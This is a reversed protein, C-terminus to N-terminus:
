CFNKYSAERYFQQVEGQFFLQRMQDKTYLPAPSDLFNILVVLTRQTGTTSVAPAAVLVQPAEQSTDGVIKNELRFGSMRVKAGSQILPAEGAPYFSVRQKQATSVFYQYSARRNAFDDIHITTVFGEITQKSEIDKQLEAPLAARAGASIAYNLFQKPDKEALRLMLIKRRSVVNKIEDLASAGAAGSVSEAFRSGFNVLQETLLKLDDSLVSTAGTAPKQSFSEGSTQTGSTQTQSSTQYQTRQQQVLSNLQTQLAAIKAQIQQITHSPTHDALTLVPAALSAALTLSVFLKKTIM